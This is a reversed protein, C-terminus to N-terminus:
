KDVESYILKEWNTEREEDKEKKRESSRGMEKWLKESLINTRM